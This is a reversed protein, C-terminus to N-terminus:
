KDCFSLIWNWIHSDLCLKRMLRTGIPLATKSSFFPSSHQGIMSLFQRDFTNWSIFKTPSLEQKTVILVTTESTKQIPWTKNWILLFYRNNKQKQYPVKHVDNKCLKPELQDHLKLPSYSFTFLKCVASMLYHCFSVHGKM